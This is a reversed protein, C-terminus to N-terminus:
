CWVIDRGKLCVHACSGFAFGNTRHSSVRVGHALIRQPIYCAWVAWWQCGGSAWLAQESLLERQLVENRISVFLVLRHM